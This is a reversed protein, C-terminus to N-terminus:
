LGLMDEANDNKLKKLGQECETYIIHWLHLVLFRELNTAIFNRRKLLRYSFLSDWFDSIEDDQIQKLIGKCSILDRVLNQIVHDVLM